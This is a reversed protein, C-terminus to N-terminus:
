AKCRAIIAAAQEAVSGINAERAAERAEEAIRFQEDMRQRCKDLRRAISNSYYTRVVSSHLNFGTDNLLKTIQKWSHGNCRLVYIHPMLSEFMKRQTKADLEM